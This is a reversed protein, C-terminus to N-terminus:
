MLAEMSSRRAEGIEELTTASRVSNKGLIRYEEIKTLEDILEGYKSIFVDAAEDLTCGTASSEAALWKYNEQSDGFVKLKYAKADHFKATYISLQNDINGIKKTRAQAALNDILELSVLKIADLDPEHVTPRPPQEFKDDTYTWGISPIDSRGILSIFECDEPLVNETTYIGVVVNDRIAAKM